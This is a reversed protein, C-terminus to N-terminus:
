QEEMATAAAGAALVAPTFYALSSPSIDSQRRWTKGQEPTTMYGAAKNAAFAAGLQRDNLAPLKELGPFMAEHPEVRQRIRDWLTWQAPFVEIGIDKARAENLELAARYADSMVQFDQPTQVWEVGRLSEPVNPNVDGKATIYKGKRTGMASFAAENVFDRVRQEGFREAQALVDDITKAKAARPDPLKALESDREAILKARDQENKARKIKGEYSKAVKKASELGSNFRKVVIGEFRQKMAPNTLLEKSFVRSMHRDMASIAAMLPDQWVTGFSATKTGLGKLQTSVKDVFAGWSEDARKIFFDPNKSFLKAAMVVNSLDQSLGIGMGGAEAASFGLEKKLKTNVDALQKPTPNDPLLNGFDEIEKMSGFRLRSQGMENPLLPANASLFGFVIGNFKQVKNGPEPTMTRALKATLKGHLEVPLSAVDVPNAKLWLLDYYTFEGDLGGPISAIDRGLEDTIRTVKSLPGLNRVGFEKGFKAFDEPAWDKPERGQFTVTGDEDIKAGGRSQMSRRPLGSSVDGVDPMAQGRQRLVREVDSEEQPGGRRRLEENLATNRKLLERTQQAGGKVPRGERMGLTSLGLYGQNEELERLIQDTTLDKPARASEPMMNANIPEYMFNYGTRGTDRLDNLRDVRFTRVSGRPNLEAYFPNAATQKATGTGILGNLINKKTQGIGYEGPRGNKHNDLYQLLTANVEDMNNGMEGLEGADIARKAAARFANMDFVTALLHNKKTIQWGVFAVERLIAEINGLNTVRYRGSSGTGIANYDAIWTRGEGRGTELQRAFERIWQPFQTFLDWQKPLTPGGVIDRGNVRRKGFETSATPVTKGADWLSKIQAARSVETRDIDSQKKPRVVGDAGRTVVDNEFVGTGNGNADKIERLVTHQSNAYDEVKGSPAVRVGRKDKRGADEMGALWQDYDRMYKTVMRRMSPDAFVPNDRFTGAPDLVRGMKDVDVGLVRLAQASSAVVQEALRSFNSQNRLRALDIGQVSARLSAAIIEDRAWDLPDAGDEISAQSFETFRQEVLRDRAADDISDAAGYVGAAIDQDVIRAAYERGRAAVGETKYRQNIYNRMEDRPLGDMAKSSFIAHAIEEPVSLRSPTGRTLPTGVGVSDGQNVAIRSENPVYTFTSNGDKDRVEITKGGKTAPRIKAVVGAVASPEGMNIFVTSTGDDATDVYFGASNEGRRKTVDLNVRYESTTLPKFTLKGRSFAQLGAMSVLDQHPLRAFAEANGGSAQTDVLMRAVMADQMEARRTMKGGAVGGAAGLTLGMGIINGAQEPEPAVLAFPVTASAGVLAGGIADDTARVASTLGVNDGFQSLSRLLRPNAQDQAVRRLTSDASARGEGRIFKAYREPIATNAALGKTAQARAASMAGADMERTIIWGANAATGAKRLTGGVMRVAPLLALAGTMAQDLPTDGGTMYGVAAASTVGGYAQMEPSLGGIVKEGVRQGGTALQIRETVADAGRGVAAGAKALVEGTPGLGKGLLIGARRLANVRALSGVGAALINAPDIGMSVVDPSSKGPAVYEGTVMNRAGWEMSPTTAKMGAIKIDTINGIAQDFNKGRWYDQYAREEDEAMQQDTLPIEGADKAAFLAQMVMDHDKIPDGTLKGEQQMKQRLQEGYAAERQRNIDMDRLNQGIYDVMKAYSLSMRRVGENQNATLSALLKDPRYWNQAVQQGLEGIAGSAMSALGPIVGPIGGLFESVASETEKSENRYARFQERSMLYAPDEALEKLPVASELDFDQASEVPRASEWDFLAPSLPAAEQKDNLPAGPYSSDTASPTAAPQQPEEDVPRASEWDFQPATQAM